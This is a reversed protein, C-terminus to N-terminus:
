SPACIPTPVYMADFRSGEAALRDINPTRTIPQGYVGLDGYGMDDALVIVVDPPGPRPTPAAAAASQVQGGAASGAPTPGAPGGCAALLLVFASTALPWVVNSRRVPM